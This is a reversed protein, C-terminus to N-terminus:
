AEEGDIYEASYICSGELDITEAEYHTGSETIGRKIFLYEPRYYGYKELLFYGIECPIREGDREIYGPAIFEALGLDRKLEGTRIAKIRM